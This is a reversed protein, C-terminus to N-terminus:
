GMQLVWGGPVGLVLTITGLRGIWESKSTRHPLDLNLLKRIPRVNNGQVKM